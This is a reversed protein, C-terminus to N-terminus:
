PQGEPSRDRGDMLPAAAAAGGARASAAACLMFAAVALLTAIGSWSRAIHWELGGALVRLAVSGHLLALPLYMAPKYCVRAHTLAPLLLLAHGFVASLVFGILVAHLVADYVFPANGSRFAILMAGAIALWLYGGLVCLAVFRSQGAERVNRRAVDHGLLWGAMLIFGAGLLVSGNENAFGNQAGAVLMGLAFLFAAASGRGPALLRSV